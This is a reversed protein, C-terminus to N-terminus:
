IIFYDRYHVHFTIYAHHKLFITISIEYILQPNILKEHLIKKISSRGEMVLFGPKM